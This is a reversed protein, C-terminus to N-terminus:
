KTRIERSTTRTIELFLAVIRDCASAFAPVQNRPQNQVYSNHARSQREGM